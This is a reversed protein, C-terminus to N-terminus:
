HRFRANRSWRITRCSRYKPNKGPLPSSGRSQEAGQQLCPRSSQGSTRRLYSILQRSSFEHKHLKEQLYIESGTSAPFRLPTHWSYLQQKAERSEADISHLKRHANCHLYLSYTKQDFGVSMLRFGRGRWSSYIPCITSSLDSARISLSERWIIRRVSGSNSVSENIM